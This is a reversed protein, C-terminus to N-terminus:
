ICGKGAIQWAVQLVPNIEKLVLTHNGIKKKIRYVM